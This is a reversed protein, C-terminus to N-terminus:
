FNREAETEKSEIWRKMGAAAQLKNMNERKREEKREKQRDNKVHLYPM